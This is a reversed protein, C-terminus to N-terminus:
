AQEAWRSVDIRGADAPRVQVMPAPNAVTPAPTSVMQVPEVTKAPAAVVPAPEATKVPAAAPPEAKPQPPMPDVRMVATTVSENLAVTQLLPQSTATPTADARNSSNSLPQTMMGRPAPTGPRYVFGQTLYVRTGLEGAPRYFVRVQSWDNNPSVDIVPVSHTVKGRGASRHPAWNAHDVLLERSNKMHRVVSVHGHAMKGQRKFVLVAGERPRSGRDYVGAAAEWWKWADGKLNLGSVDRAYTVCQIAASAQFPTALAMTAVIVFTAPLITARRM